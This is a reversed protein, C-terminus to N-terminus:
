KPISQLKSVDAITNPDFTATDDTEEDGSSGIQKTRVPMSIAKFEAVLRQMQATEVADTVKIGYEILKNACELRTKIDKAPDNMTEKLLAIAQPTIKMLAKQTKYLPNQKVDRVFTIRGEPAPKMETVENTM